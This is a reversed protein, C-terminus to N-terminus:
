RPVNALNKPHFEKPDKRETYVQIKIQSKCKRKKPLQNGESDLFIEEWQFSSIGHLIIEDLSQLNEYTHLIVRLYCGSTQM